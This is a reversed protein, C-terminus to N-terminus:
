SVSLVGDRASSVSPHDPGAPPRHESTRALAPPWWIRRDLELVLAPVLVTRVLLTDLLVGFAIVLGLETFGILRLSALAPM